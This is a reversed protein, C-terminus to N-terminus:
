RGPGRVGGGPPTKKITPKLKEVKVVAPRTYPKRPPPGKPAPKAFAM